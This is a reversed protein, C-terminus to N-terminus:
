CCARGALPHTAVLTVARFAIGELERWPDPSRDAYHVDEFGLQRFAELFAEEQWAGSICGSWLEPDEQLHRPVPRDCVIDSIAVRGGPALVRQINSLLRDRASPNVLNLVCNSLVLDISQDALLAQGDRDVGLQDIEGCSFTVNGYGIAAAVAGCAGRSLKLMEDNRDLGLVSGEPGVLQSAIFANKGSGSGLDLVRDGRQVWRTPDGCGYDREIVDRPIAELLSPEFPVATCLCPEQEQAAAGYRADVAASHDPACCGSSAKTDDM